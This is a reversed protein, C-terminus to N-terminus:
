VLKRYGRAMPRIMRRVRPNLLLGVIVLLLVFFPHDQVVSGAKGGSRRVSSYTRGLMSGYRGGTVAGTQVRSLWDLAASQELWTKEQYSVVTHDLPRFYLLQPVHALNVNYQELEARYQEVNLWAFRLLAENQIAEKKAWSNALQRVSDLQSSLASADNTDAGLVALVVSLGQTDELIDELSENEIQALREHGNRELWQLIQAQAEKSNSPLSDLELVGSPQSQSEKFVLLRSGVSSYGANDRVSSPFRRLLEPDTAYLLKGHDYEIGASDVIQKEENSVSPAALYLFNVHSRRLESDLEQARVGSLSTYVGQEQLFALMASKTREGQQVTMNGDNYLRLTPYYPVNYKTCLDSYKECDVAIANVHGKVSVALKAYEPAMSKVFSPGQGHDAGLYADLAAESPLASTGFETFGQLPALSLNVESTEVAETTQSDKQIGSLPQPTSATTIVDVATTLTSAASLEAISSASSVPSKGALKLRYKQVSEDVYSSLGKLTFDKNVDGDVKMGDFYLTIQPYAEIQEQVCLDMSILCNVRALTMPAIPDLRLSDKAEGLQAWVPAFQQCHPCKPSYYEVLWAGQQISTFNSGTLTRGEPFRSDHAVPAAAVYAVVAIVILGLRSLKM